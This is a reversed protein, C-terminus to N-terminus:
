NSIRIQISSPSRALLRVRTIIKFYFFNQSTKHSQFSLVCVIAEEGPHKNDRGNMTLAVCFILAWVFLIVRRSEDRDSPETDNKDKELWCREKNANDIKVKIKLQSLVECRSGRKM